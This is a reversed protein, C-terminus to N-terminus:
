SIEDVMKQLDAISMEELAGEQKRQILELLKDKKEKKAAATARDKQEQLKVLIIHKVIDFKLQLKENKNEIPKQVFNEEGAEKLEASLGKAVTNLDYNDRENLLPMRWLDEVTVGGGGKVTSFRLRLRTAQEFM